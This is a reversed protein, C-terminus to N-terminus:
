FESRLELMVQLMYLCVFVPVRFLSYGRLGGVNGLVDEDKM